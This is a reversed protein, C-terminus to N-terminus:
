NPKHNTLKSGFDYIKTFIGLAKDDLKTDTLPAIIALLTKISAVVGVLGGWILAAKSLGDSNQFLELLKLLLDM